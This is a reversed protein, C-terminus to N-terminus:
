CWSKDMKCKGQFWRHQIQNEPSYHELDEELNIKEPNIQAPFIRKCGGKNMHERYARKFNNKSEDSLCPKCLQCIPSMCSSRCVPSECENPFVMINKDAVKMEDEVLHKKHRTADSVGVLGLTNFIIQEFLLRNRPFHASSLNPSMNAEMLFVDLNEDVVFDFRMMEFFNTKSAFRKMANIINPEKALAVIRISDEIQEWIKSPDKNKARLYANVSEAMGFSLNNHYYKLDPVDWPPLYDDGVVYKDINHPDFPYYKVPCFRLLYDEAYIYVRLPDVSTFIVYVGIDFKYGSILLPKDVYEQIFAGDNNLNVDTINKIRIYRHDNNKEVLLKYPRIQAYNLLKEKDKPLRFAAPIYKLDSTALNVKNTIFGSGPLKNVKQYPKLRDLKSHLDFFPYKHAWLLDWDDANSGNKYGLRDLIRFVNELYGSKVNDGYIWYRKYTHRIKKEECELPSNKLTTAIIALLIFLIGILNWKNLNLQKIKTNVEEDDEKTTKSADSM